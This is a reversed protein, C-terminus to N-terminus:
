FLQCNSHFIFRLFVEEMTTVSVGFSSIKLDAQSASLYDFLNEFTAKSDAPLIYSLEASVDSEMQATPVYSQIIKTIATVDCDPEKVIVM